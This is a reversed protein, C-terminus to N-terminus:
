LASPTDKMDGEAWERVANAFLRLATPPHRNAPYYLCLGPFSPSWETLLQVLRGTLPAVIAVVRSPDAEVVAPVSLRRAGPRTGVEAVALRQRLPSDAPVVIRSGQEVFMPGPEAVVPPQAAFVSAAAAAALHAALLRALITM